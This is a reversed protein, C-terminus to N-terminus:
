FLAEAIEAKFALLGKQYFKGDLTTHGPARQEMFETFMGAAYAAKWADSLGAFIRDRMTRGRWFPIVEERYVRIDEETTLYPTKARSGLIRLDDESHCTM